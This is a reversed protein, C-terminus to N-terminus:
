AFRRAEPVAFACNAEQMEAERQSISILAGVGDGPVIHRFEEKVRNVRPPQDVSYRSISLRNM